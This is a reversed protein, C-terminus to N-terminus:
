LLKLDNETDIDAEGGPFDILFTDDLYKQIISKCGKSDEINLIESFYERDFIAPIGYTNNYSSACIKHRSQEYAEILENIIASTVNIQDVVLFVVADIDDKTASRLGAKISSGIGNEWSANEICNIEKNRVVSLVKGHNAGTVLYVCDSHSEFSIDIIRNVLYEGNKKLLQKPQELRTSSGAALIIIAIKRKNKRETM